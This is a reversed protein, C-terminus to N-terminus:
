PPVFHGSTVREPGPYERTTVNGPYVNISPDRTMATYLTYETFHERTLTWTTPFSSLLHPQGTVPCLLTVAHLNQTLSGPSDQSDATTAPHPSGGKCLAKEPATRSTFTKKGALPLTHTHKTNM